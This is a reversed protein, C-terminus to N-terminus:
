WFLFLGRRLLACLASISASTREDVVKQCVRKTDEKIRNHGQWPPLNDLPAAQLFGRKVRTRKQRSKQPCSLLSHPGRCFLTKSPLPSEQRRDLKATIPLTLTCPRSDVIPRRLCSWDFTEALTSQNLPVEFGTRKDLWIRREQWSSRCKQKTGFAFGQVAIMCGKGACGVKSLKGCLGTSHVHFLSHIAFQGFNVM